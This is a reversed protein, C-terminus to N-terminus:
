LFDNQQGEYTQLNEQYVNQRPSDFEPKTSIQLWVDANMTFGCLEGKRNKAIGTILKSEQRTSHM